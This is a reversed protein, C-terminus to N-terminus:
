APPPAPLHEHCYEEGDGAIRFELTPDSVETRACTKCMHFSEGAPMSKAHYESRRASVRAGHRWRRLAIPVAFCAYPVMALVLPIRMSPTALAEYLLGAGALCALWKVKVPLVFFLLFTHNPVVTAFAFFLSSYLLTSAQWGVMMGVGPDFAIAAVWLCVLSAGYYLNLRFKGWEAELQDGIILLIIVAFVIWILSLTRPIFCFTFFRWIEWDTWAAPTLVLFELFPPKAYVLLFCIVQFSAIIRLLGPLAFRDFRRELRDLLTPQTM